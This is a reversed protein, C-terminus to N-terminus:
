YAVPLSTATTAAMIRTFNGPITEGPVCGVFTVDTTPDNLTRAVVNGSGGVRFGISGTIDTSDSATHGVWRTPMSGNFM